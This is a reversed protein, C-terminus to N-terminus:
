SFALGLDQPDLLQKPDGKLVIRESAMVIDGMGELLATWLL